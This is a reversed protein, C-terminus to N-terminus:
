IADHHSGRQVRVGHAVEKGPQVTVWVVNAFLRRQNHAYLPVTDFTRPGVSAASPRLTRTDLM